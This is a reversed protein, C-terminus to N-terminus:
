MLAKGSIQAAQGIIRPIHRRVSIGADIRRRLGHSMGQAASGDNAKVDRLSADAPHTHFQAKCCSPLPTGPFIDPHWSPKRGVGQV